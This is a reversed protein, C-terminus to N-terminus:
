LKEQRNQTAFLTHIAWVFSSFVFLVRFRFDRRFCQVATVTPLLTMNQISEQATYPARNCLVFGCVPETLTVKRIFNVVSRYAFRFSICACVRCLASSESFFTYFRIYWIFFNVKRFVRWRWTSYPVEWCCKLLHLWSAWHVPPNLQSRFILCNVCSSYHSM